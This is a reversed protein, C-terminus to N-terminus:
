KAFSWYIHLDYEDSTDFSKELVARAYDTTGFDVLGAVRGAIPAEGEFSITRYRGEIWAEGAQRETYIDRTCSWLSEV